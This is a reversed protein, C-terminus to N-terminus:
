ASHCHRCACGAGDGVAAGRLLASEVPCFAVGTLAACGAEDGAEAGGPLPLDVSCFTVGPLAACGAEDGLEAGGPPAASQSLAACGAVVGMEAGGPLAMTSGSADDDQPAGGWFLAACGTPRFATTVSTERGIRNEQSSRRFVGRACPPPPFAAHNSCLRSHCYQRSWSNKSTSM